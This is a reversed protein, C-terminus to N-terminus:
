EGEWTFRLGPMPEATLPVFASEVIEFARERTVRNYRVKGAGDVVRWNGQAEDLLVVVGHPREGQLYFSRLPYYIGQLAEGAERARARTEFTCWVDEYGTTEDRWMLTASSVPAPTQAHEVHGLLKYILWVARMHLVLRVGAQM